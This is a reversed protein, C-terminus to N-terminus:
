PQCFAAGALARGLGDGASEGPESDACEPRLGASADHGHGAPDPFDDDPHRGICLGLLLLMLRIIRIKGMSKM